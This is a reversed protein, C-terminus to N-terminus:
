EGKKKHNVNVYQDLEPDDLSGTGFRSFLHDPLLIHFLEGMNELKRTEEGERPKRIFDKPLTLTVRTGKEFVRAFLGWKKQPYGSALIQLQVVAAGNELMERIQENEPMEFVRDLAEKIKKEKDEDLRLIKHIQYDKMIKQQKLHVNFNM